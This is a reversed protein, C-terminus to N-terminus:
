LLKNFELLEGKKRSNMRELPTDFQRFGDESDFNRKYSDILHISRTYASEFDAFQVAL